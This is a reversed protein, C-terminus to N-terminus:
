KTAGNKMGMWSELKGEWWEKGKDKIKYEEALKQAFQIALGMKEASPVPKGDLKLKKISLQEAYGRARELIDNVQNTQVEFGYKKLLVTVFGTALIGLVAFILELLHKLLVQWWKAELQPAPTEAAKPAETSAVPAAVPQTAPVTVKASTVKVEVKPAKADESFATQPVSIVMLSALCAAVMLSRM